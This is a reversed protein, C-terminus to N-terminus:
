FLCFYFLIHPETYICSVLYLFHAKKKLDNIDSKNSKENIQHKEKEQDQNDNNERHRINGRGM